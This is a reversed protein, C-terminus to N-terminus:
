EDSVEKPMLSKGFVEEIWNVDIVRLGEDTCFGHKLLRALAQKIDDEWFWNHEKNSTNALDSADYMNDISYRENELCFDPSEVTVNGSTQKASPIMPKGVVNEQGKSEQNYKEVLADIERKLKGCVVTTISNDSWNNTVIDKLEKVFEKPIM